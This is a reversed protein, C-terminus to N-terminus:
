IRIFYWSELFCIPFEDFKGIVMYEVIYYIFNIM